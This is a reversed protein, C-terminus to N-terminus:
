KKKLRETRLAVQLRRIEKQMEINQRWFVGMVFLSGTLAITIGILTGTDLIM